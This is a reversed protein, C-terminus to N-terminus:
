IIRYGIICNGHERESVLVGSVDGSVFKQKMHGRKCQNLCSDQLHHGSSMELLVSWCYTRLISLHISVILPKEFTESYHRLTESYHRMSKAPSCTFCLLNGRSNSNPSHVSLFISFAFSLCLSFTVLSNSSALCKAAREAEAFGGSPSLSAGM